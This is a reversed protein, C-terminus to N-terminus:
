NAAAPSAESGAGRWHRRMAARASQREAASITGDKDTDAREFRATAATLFEERSVANDNNTDAHRALMAMGGGHGRGHRGHHQRGGGQGGANAQRDARRTARQAQRQEHHATWEARSIAGNNDADMSTFMEASHRDAVIDRDERTLRGDNNGDLRSFLQTAATDAEARSIAGDGNADAMRMMDHGMRHGRPTAGPTEQAVLVGGVAMAALSAAAIFPLRKMM